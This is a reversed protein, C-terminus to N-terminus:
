SRFTDQGWLVVQVRIRYSIFYRHHYYNDFFRRINEKQEVLYGKLKYIDVHNINQSIDYYCQVGMYGSLM